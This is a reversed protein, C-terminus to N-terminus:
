PGIGEATKLATQVMADWAARIQTFGPRGAGFWAPAPASGAAIVGADMMQDTAQLPVLVYGNRMARLVKKGKARRKM